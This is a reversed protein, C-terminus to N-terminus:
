YTSVTIIISKKVKTNNTKNHTSDFGLHKKQTTNCNSFM